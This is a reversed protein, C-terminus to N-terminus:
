RQKLWVQLLGHICCLQFFFVGHVKTAVYHTLYNYHILSIRWCKELCVLQREGGKSTHFLLKEECYITNRQHSNASGFAKSHNLLTSSLLSQCDCSQSGRNKFSCWLKVFTVGETKLTWQKKRFRSTHTKNNKKKKCLHLFCYLVKSNAADCCLLRCARHKQFHLLWVWKLQYNLGKHVNMYLSLYLCVCEFSLWWHHSSSFQSLESKNKYAYERSTWKQSNSFNFTM